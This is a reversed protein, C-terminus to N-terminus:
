PLGGVQRREAVFRELAAPEYMIRSGVQVYGLLGARRYNFMTKASLDGLIRRAEREPVLLLPVQPTNAREAM